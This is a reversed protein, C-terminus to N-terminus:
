EGTFTPKRRAAFAAVGEDRDASAAIAASGLAEVMAGQDEGRAANLM